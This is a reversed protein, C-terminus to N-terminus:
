VVQFEVREPVVRQASHERLPMRQSCMGTHGQRLQKLIREDDFRGATIVVDLVQHEFARHLRINKVAKPVIGEDSDRICMQNQPAM